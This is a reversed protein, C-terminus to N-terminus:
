FIIKWTGEFMLDSQKAIVGRTKRAFLHQDQSLLGFESIHLGNAEGYDLSWTFTVTGPEDSVNTDLTKMFSTFDGGHLNNGLVLETTLKGGITVSDPTPSNSDSGVAIKTLFKNNNGPLIGAMISKASNVVLNDGECSYVVDGSRNKINFALVGKVGHLLIKDTFVM